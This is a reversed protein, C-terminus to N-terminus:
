HSRYTFESSLFSWYAPFCLCFLNCSVKLTLSTGMTSSSLYNVRLISLLTSGSCSKLMDEETLKNFISSHLESSLWHCQDLVTVVAALSDASINQVEAQLRNVYQQVVSRICEFLAERQASGKVVFCCVLPRSVM